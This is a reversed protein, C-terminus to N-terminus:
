LVRRILHRVADEPTLRTVDLTAQAVALYTPERAALLQKIEELGGGLPTLNPRTASTATDGQIRALLVDPDCQLYVTKAEAAAALAARAGPQMVTGGGLAIVQNSGRLLEQLVAVEAERFAPEGLQEWIERITRNGLRKCVEADTDAFNKWLADALKRGITTKGCGRYGLLVINM